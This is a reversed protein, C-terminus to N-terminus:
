KRYNGRGLAPHGPLPEEINVPEVPLEHSPPTAHRKGFIMQLVSMSLAVLGLGGGWVLIRKNAKQQLEYNTRDIHLSRLTSM